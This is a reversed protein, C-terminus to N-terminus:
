TSKSRPCTRRNHGSEGCGRCRNDTKAPRRWKNKCRKSCFEAVRGKRIHPLPCWQAGCTRCTYVAANEKWVRERQERQQANFAERKEESMAARQRRMSLRSVERHRALRDGAEAYVERRWKNVRLVNCLAKFEREEKRERWQAIARGRGDFQYGEALEGLDVDFHELRRRGDSGQERSM